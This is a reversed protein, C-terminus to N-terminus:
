RNITLCPLRLTVCYNERFSHVKLLWDCVVCVKNDYICVPYITICINESVFM